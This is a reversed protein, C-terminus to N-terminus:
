LVNCIFTIFGTIIVHHSCDNGVINTDYFTVQNFVFM